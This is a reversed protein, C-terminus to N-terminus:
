RGDGRGPRRWDPALPTAILLLYLLGWHFAFTAINGAKLVHLFVVVLLGALLRHPPSCWLQLARVAVLLYIGAVCLLGLIGMEYAIELALNHPYRYVPEAREFAGLGRGLPQELFGQWAEQYLESRSALLGRNLRELYAYSKGMLPLVFQMTALGALLLVLSLAVRTVMRRWPPGLLVVAAIGVLLLATFRGRILVEQLSVGLLLVASLFTWGASTRALLVGCAALALALPMGTMSIEGAVDAMDGEGFALYMDRKLLTVVLALALSVLLTVRLGRGFAATLPQQRCGALLAAGMLGLFKLVTDWGYDNLQNNALAYALFLAYVGCLALLPLMSWGMRRGPAQRLAAAVLACPIFMWWRLVPLLGPLIFM